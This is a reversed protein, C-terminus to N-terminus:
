LLDLDDAAQTWDRLVQQVSADSGGAYVQVEFNTVVLTAEQRLRLADDEAQLILLDDLPGTMILLGGPGGTISMWEEHGHIRGSKALDDCWQLFRELVALALGERGPVPAGWRFVVAGTLPM